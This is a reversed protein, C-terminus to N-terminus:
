REKGMDVPRFYIVKVWPTLHLGAAPKFIVEDGVGPYYRHTQREHVYTIGNYAVQWQISQKHKGEVITGIVYGAEELRYRLLEKLKAAHRKDAAKNLYPQATRYVSAADLKDFQSRLECFMQYSAEYGADILLAVLFGDADSNYNLATGLELRKALKLRTEVPLLRLNPNKRPLVNILDAAEICLQQVTEPPLKISIQKRAELVRFAAKEVCLRIIRTFVEEDFLEWATEGSWSSMNVRDKYSLGEMMSVPWVRGTAPDKWDMEELGELFELMPSYYHSESDEPKANRIRTEIARALVDRPVGARITYKLWEDNAYSGFPQYADFVFSSREAEPILLLIDTSQLVRDMCDQDLLHRRLFQAVDGVTKAFLEPHEFIWSMGISQMRYHRDDHYIRVVESLRDATLTGAEASITLEVQLQDMEERNVCNLM